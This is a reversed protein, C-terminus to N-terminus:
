FIDDVGTAYPPLAAKLAFFVQLTSFLTLLVGM